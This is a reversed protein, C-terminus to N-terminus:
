FLYFIRQYNINVALSNIFATESGKQNNIRLILTLIYCKIRYCNGVASFRMTRWRDSGVYILIISVVRSVCVCFWETGRRVSFSIRALLQLVRRRLFWTSVQPWPFHAVRHETVLPHGWGRSGGHAANGTLKLWSQGTGFYMRSRLRGHPRMGSGGGPHLLKTPPVVLYVLQQNDM